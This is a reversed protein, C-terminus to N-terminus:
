KFTINTNYPTIIIGYKNCVRFDFCLTYYEELSERVKGAGNAQIIAGPIYLPWALLGLISLSSGTRQLKKGKVFDNYIAPHIKRIESLNSMKETGFVTWSGRRFYVPLGVFDQASMQSPYNNSRVKGDFSLTFEVRKQKIKKEKEKRKKETIYYIHKHTVDTIEKQLKAVNGGRLVIAARRNQANEPIYISENNINNLDALTIRTTENVNKEISFVDRSGNAYKIMFIESKKMTYSPGNPNETKKYKVENESIEIVIAEIETGTLLTIIDKVVVISKNEILTDRIETEVGEMVNIKCLRECMAIETSVDADANCKSYEKYYFLADCYKKQSVLETARKLLSNCDQSFVEVVSICMLAFFSLYKHTIKMILIKNTNKNININNDDKRM